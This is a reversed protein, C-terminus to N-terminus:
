VRRTGQGALSTGPPPVYRGIPWGLGTEARPCIVKTVTMEGAEVCGRRRASLRGVRNAPLVHMAEAHEVGTLTLRRLTGLAEMVRDYPRFALQSAYCAAARQKVEWTEDAAVLLNPLLPTGVEYAVVWAPSRRRLGAFTSARLVSHLALALARHDPHLEVPSTVFVV